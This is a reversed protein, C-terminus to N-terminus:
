AESEKGEFETHRVWTIADERKWFQVVSLDECNMTDGVCGHIPPDGYHWKTPPRTRKGDFIGTHMEVLFTKGCDQCAIELLAVQNSYIDPCKDPHFEGYRPTGNADYWTPPEKIRGLIDSYNERM